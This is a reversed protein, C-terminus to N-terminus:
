CLETTQYKPDSAADLLLLMCSIATAADPLRCCGRDTHMCRERNTFCNADLDVPCELSVITYSCPTNITQRITM